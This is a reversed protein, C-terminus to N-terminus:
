ESKFQHQLDSEKDQKDSDYINHEAFYKLDKDDRSDSDNTLITTQFPVFNCLENSILDLEEAMQDIIYQVEEIRGANAYTVVRAETIGM